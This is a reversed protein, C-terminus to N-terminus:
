QKNHKKTFGCIEKITCNEKNCIILSSKGRSDYGASTETHCFPILKSDIDPIKPNINM